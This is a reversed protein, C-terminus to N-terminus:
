AVVLMSLGWVEYASVWRGRLSRLGRIFLHTLELDELCLNRVAPGLVLYSLLSKVSFSGEGLWDSGFLSIGYSKPGM